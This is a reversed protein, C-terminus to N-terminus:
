NVYANHWDVRQVLKNISPSNEFAENLKFLLCPSINVSITNPQNLRRTQNINKNANKNKRTKQALYFMSILAHASVDM